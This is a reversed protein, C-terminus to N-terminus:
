EISHRQRSFRVGPVACAIILNMSNMQLKSRWGACPLPKTVQYGYVGPDSSANSVYLRAGDRSVVAGFPNDGVPVTAIVANTVTDIVSVSDSLQNTVYLRTGLLGVAVAPPSDGIPITGLVTNTSMDIVSVSDDGANAVYVRCEFRSVAVVLPDDGVPIIDVVTAAPAPAATPGAVPV